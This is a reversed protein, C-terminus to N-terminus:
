NLPIGRRAEPFRYLDGKLASTPGPHIRKYEKEAEIQAHAISKSKFYPEQHAGWFDLKHNKLNSAYYYCEGDELVVWGIYFRDVYLVYFSEFNIYIELNDSTFPEPRLDPDIYNSNLRFLFREVVDVLLERAECLEMINQTIFELRIMPGDIGSCYMANELHLRREYKLETTVQEVTWTLDDTPREILQRHAYRTDEPTMTPTICCCSTLSCLIIFILANRM